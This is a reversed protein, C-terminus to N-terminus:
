LNHPPGLGQKRTDNLEPTRFQVLCSRKRLDRSVPHMPPQGHHRNHFRTSDLYYWLQGAANSSMDHSAGKNSHCTCWSALGPQSRAVGFCEFWGTPPVRPAVAAPDVKESDRPCTPKRLYRPATYEHTLSGQCLGGHWPTCSSGM